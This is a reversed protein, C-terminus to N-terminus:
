LGLQKKASATLIIGFPVLDEVTVLATKVLTTENEAYCRDTDLDFNLIYGFSAEIDFMVRNESEKYEKVRSNVLMAAQLTPGDFMRLVDEEYHMKPVELLRGEKDCPVFMGKELPQNLFEAYYCCAAFRSSNVISQYEGMKFVFDLMSILKM